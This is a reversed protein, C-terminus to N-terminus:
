YQIKIKLLEQAKSYEFSKATCKKLSISDIDIQYGCEDGLNIARPNYGDFVLTDNAKNDYKILFTSTSEDLYLPLSLRESFLPDIRKNSELNIVELIRAGSDLEVNRNNSDIYVVSVDNYYGITGRGGFPTFGRNDTEVIFDGCPERCSQLAGLSLVTIAFILIPFRSM